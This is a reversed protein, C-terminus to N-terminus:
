EVGGFFVGTDEEGTTTAIEVDPGEGGSVNLFYGAYIPVGVRLAAHLSELEARITRV